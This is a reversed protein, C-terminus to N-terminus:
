GNVTRWKKNQSRQRCHGHDKCGMQDDVAVAQNTIHDPQLVPEAGALMGPRLTGLGAEVLASGVPERGPEHDHGVASEVQNAVIAREAPESPSNCVLAYGISGSRLAVLPISSECPRATTVSATRRSSRTGSRRSTPATSWTIFM